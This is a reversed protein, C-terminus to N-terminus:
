SLVPGIPECASADPNDKARQCNPSEDLHYHCLDDGRVHVRVSAPRPPCDGLVPGRPITVSSPRVDRSAPPRRDPRWARIPRVPGTRGPPSPDRRRTPTTLDMLAPPPHRPTM